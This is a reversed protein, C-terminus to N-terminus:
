SATWEAALDTSSVLRAGYVNKLYDLGSLHDEETFANMCDPVGIVKFGRQFADAATHRCCMHTHLGTVVVTDVDLTRLLLELGTEQFSSYNRKELIFDTDAPQLEAIVQAEPTGKMAHEGWVRMEPDTPLHADNAFIVPKGAARAAELLTKLNPIIALARESALKGYLFDNVMDVVIIAEKM